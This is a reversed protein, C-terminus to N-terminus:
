HTPPHRSRAPTPHACGRARPPPHSPCPPGHPASALATPDTRNIPWVLSVFGTAAMFAYAFLSMWAFPVHVYMIRFSDGQQYDAPAIVLGGYFGVAGTILALAYLWPLLRGAFRYFYPPSGFKHFWLVLPNM